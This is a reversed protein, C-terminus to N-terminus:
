KGPCGFWWDRSDSVLRWLLGNLLGDEWLGALYRCNLTRHFRTALGSLGPLRDSLKTIDRRMYQQVIDWWLQHMEPNAPGDETDRLVRCDPTAKALRTEWNVGDETVDKAGCRWWVDSPAFHIVRKSLFSEQLAWARTPLLGSGPIDASTFHARVSFNRAVGPPDVITFRRPKWRSERAALFSVGGDPSCEVSLTVAAKEYYQAMRASEIEWDTKFDQRICLSDIWLYKIDLERCVKIADQFVPSLDEWAIRTRFSSENQMTLQPPKHDGSGWCHSLAAYEAVDNRDPAPEFLRIDDNVTRLFLTRSPLPSKIERPCTGHENDHGEHRCKRFMDKAFMLGSTICGLDTCGNEEQLIVVIKPQFLRSECEIDTRIFASTIEVVYVSGQTFWRVKVHLPNMDSLDVLGLYADHIDLMM